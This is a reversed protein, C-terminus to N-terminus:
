FATMETSIPWKNQAARYFKMIEKQKTKMNGHSKLSVSM